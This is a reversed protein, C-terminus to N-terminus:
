HNTLQILDSLYISINEKKDRSISYKKAVSEYYERISNKDIIKASRDNEGYSKRVNIYPEELHCIRELTKATYVDYYLEKVSQLVDIESQALAVDKAVMPLANHRFKKFENYINRYVAGHVWAECDDKFLWEGNFIYNWAQAFYLLKQLALHTIRNDETAQSLFWNVVQYIKGEREEVKDIQRIVSDQLKHFAVEELIKGESEEIQKDLVQKLVYPDNLSKLKESNALSPTYNQNVYRTLTIEGWGLMRSLFKQSADYMSLIHLIEERKIIGRSQRIQENARDSIESEIDEITVLAGCHKCFPVRVTMTFEYGEGKYEREVERMEICNKAGCEFCMITKMKDRMEELELKNM